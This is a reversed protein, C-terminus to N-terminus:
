DYYRGRPTYYDDDAAICVTPWSRHRLFTVDCSKPIAACRVGTTLVIPLLIYSHIDVDVCWHEDLSEM